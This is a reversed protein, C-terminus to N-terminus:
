GEVLIIEKMSFAIKEKALVDIARYQEDKPVLIIHPSLKQGGVTGVLGKDQFQEEDRGFLLRRARIYKKKERPYTLSFLVYREGIPIATGKAYLLLGESAISLKLHWEQLNGYHVAFPYTFKLLKWKQYDRSTIFRRIGSEVQRKIILEDKAACEVFLDIDSKAQLEGRVASGFLYISSVKDGTERHQFIFSLM